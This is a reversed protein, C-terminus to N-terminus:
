SATVRKTKKRYAGVFEYDLADAISETIGRRGNLVDSVFAPSFGNAKAWDQQSGAERCASRLVDLLQEATLDSAPAERRQDNSPTNM